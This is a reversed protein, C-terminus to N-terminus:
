VGSWLKSRYICIVGKFVVFKLAVKINFVYHM